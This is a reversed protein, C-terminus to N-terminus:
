RDKKWMGKVGKWHRVPYYLWYLQPYKMRYQQRMFERTPFVVLRFYRLKARLGKSKRINGLHTVAGYPESRYGNLYREFLEKDSATLYTDMVQAYAAPVPVGYYQRILVLYKYVVEECNYQKCRVELEQWDIKESHIDLLNVLDCFSTFQIDGGTFHKDLHVCLFIILDHLELVNVQSHNVVLPESRDIIENVNLSYPLKRNQLDIHIEVSVDKLLMPPYHVFGTHEGIMQTIKNTPQYFGMNRLIQQCKEGDEKNVLLDIDSFQRMGIDGYLGESLHIGKLAVVKIENLTFAEIVRRFVDQLVMGRTLTRYYSQKLQEQIAIPILGQNPLLSLKKYFLPGVGLAILNKVVEDWNIVVLLQANLEELETESLHIKSSLLIIKNQPTMRLILEINIELYFEISEM